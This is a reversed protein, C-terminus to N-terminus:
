SEGGRVPLRAVVRTGEGPTSQIDLTGGVEAVRRKMMDLGFHGRARARSPADFAVFGRGTDGVEVVVEDSTTRVKVSVSAPSAHKAANALSERIVVYAAALVPRPVEPLDGEVSVRAPLRWRQVVDDVYKALPELSSSGGSGGERSLDFLVGRLESLSKRIEAKTATLTEIAGQPDREIRQGMAELELVATTVVQTLGDHIESAWRNRERVMLSDVAHRRAEIVARAAGTLRLVTRLARPSLGPGSRWGAVLAELAPGDAIAAAVLQSSSLGLVVGLQRATAEELPEPAALTRLASRVEQPFRRPWQTAPHSVIDVTGGREVLHCIEDAEMAAALGAMLGPLDTAPDELARRVWDTVREIADLETPPAAYVSVDGALVAGLQQLHARSLAGWGRQPARPEGSDLVLRSGHPLALVGISGCGMTALREGTGPVAGADPFLADGATTGAVRPDLVAHWGRVPGSRGIMRWGSGNPEFLSVTDFGTQSRVLGLLEALSRRRVEAAPLTEPQPAVAMNHDAPTGNEAVEAALSPGVARLVDVAREPSADTTRAFVASDGGPLRCVIWGDVPGELVDDVRAPVPPGNPDTWLALKREGGSTTAVGVVDLRLLEALRRCEEAVPSAAHIAAPENM